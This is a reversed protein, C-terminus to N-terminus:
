SDTCNQEHFSTLQMTHINQRFTKTKIRSRLAINDEPYNM